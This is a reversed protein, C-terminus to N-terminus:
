RRFGGGDRCSQLGSRDLVWVAVVQSVDRCFTVMGYGSRLASAWQAAAHEPVTDCCGTGVQCGSVGLTAASPM